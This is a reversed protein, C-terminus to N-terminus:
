ALCVQYGSEQWKLSANWSLRDCFFRVKAALSSLPLLFLNPFVLPKSLQPRYPFPNLICSSVRANLQYVERFAKGKSGEPFEPFECKVVAKRVVLATSEFCAKAEKFGPLTQSGVSKASKGVLNTDVVYTTANSGGSKALCMVQIQYDPAGINANFEMVWLCGKPKFKLSVLDTSKKKEDIFESLFDQISDTIFKLEEADNDLERIQQNLFRSSTQYPKTIATLGNSKTNAPPIHGDLLLSPCLGDKRKALQPTMYIKGSADPGKPASPM